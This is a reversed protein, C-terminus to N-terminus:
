STARRNHRKTATKTSKREILRGQMLITCPPLAQHEIRDRLTALVKIALGSIPQAITTLPVPLTKAMPANDFGAVKVSEPIQVGMALFFRILEAATFDNDCVIADVDMKKIIDYILAIKGPHIHIVQEDPLNGGGAAIAQRLGALRLQPTPFRMQESIFIFNRCGQTLLHRGIDHGAHHHDMCVLDYTSRRPYEVIDRDFLIAPIKHADFEALINHNFADGQGGVTHPVLIVGEVGSSILRRAAEVPSTEENNEDTENHITSQNTLIQWELQAATRVINQIINPFISDNEHHILGPVILGCCLKNSSSEGVFSGSGRKRWIFGDQALDNLARVVTIRSVRFENTFDNESPLKLGQGYKGSNIRCLIENYITHHQTGGHKSKQKNTNM